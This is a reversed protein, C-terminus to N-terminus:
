VNNHLTTYICNYYWGDGGDKNPRFYIDYSGDSDVSCDPAGDPYWSDGNRVKFADTSKLPIPDLLIYENNLKQYFHYSDSDWNTVGNLTGVLRYDSRKNDYSVTNNAHWYIWYYGRDTTNASASVINYGYGISVAVGSDIITEFVAKDEWGGPVSNSLNQAVGNLYLVYSPFTAWLSYSGIFDKLYLDISPGGNTIALPSGAANCDNEAPVNISEGRFKFALQSGSKPAINASFQNIGSGDTGHYTLPVNSVLEESNNTYSVTFGIEIDALQYGPYSYNFAYYGDAATNSLKIKKSSAGDDAFYPNTISICSSDSVRLKWDVANGDDNYYCIYFSDSHVFDGAFRAMNGDPAGSSNMVANDVGNIRGQLFYASQDNQNRPFSILKNQNVSTAVIKSAADYNDDNKNDVDLYVSLLYNGADELPINMMTYVVFHTYDTKHDKNFDSISLGSGGDNITTYAKSSQYQKAQKGSVVDGNGGNYMARTWVADTNALDGDKVKIAAVFRISINGASEMTQIAIAPSSSDVVPALKQVGTKELRAEGFIEEHALTDEAFLNVNAGANASLPQCASLVMLAPIVTLFVKKKM